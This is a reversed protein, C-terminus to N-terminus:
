SISRKAMVSEPEEEPLVSMASHGPHASGDTAFSAYGHVNGM